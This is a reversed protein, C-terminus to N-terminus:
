SKALTISRERLTAAWSFPPTPKRIFFCLISTISPVAFSSFPCPAGFATIARFAPPVRVTCALFTMRAVPARARVM